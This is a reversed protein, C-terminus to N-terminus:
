VTSFIGPSFHPEPEVLQFVRLLSSCALDYTKDYMTKFSLLYM